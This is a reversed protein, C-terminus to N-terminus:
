CWINNSKNVIASYAKAIKLKIKVTAIFFSVDAFILFDELLFTLFEKLNSSLKFNGNGIFIILAFVTSVFSFFLHFFHENGFWIALGLQRSRLQRAVDIHREFGIINENGTLIVINPRIVNNIYYAKDIINIDHNSHRLVFFSFLMPLIFLLIRIKSEYQAILNNNALVGITVSTASIVLLLYNMLGHQLTVRSQIDAALTKYEELWVKLIEESKVPQIHM